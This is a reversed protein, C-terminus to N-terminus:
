LEATVEDDLTNDDEILAVDSACDEVDACGDEVEDDIVEELEEVEVDVDDVM